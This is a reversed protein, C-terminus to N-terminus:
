RQQNTDAYVTVLRLAESQAEYTTIRGGTIKLSGKVSTIRLIYLERQM